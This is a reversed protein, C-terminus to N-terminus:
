EHRLAIAPDVKAARRAPVLAAVLAVLGLVGTMTAYSLPDTASVGDLFGAFLRSLALAGALGLGVGALTLRLGQGLVLRLTDRVEAGLALRIGIEQTRREVMYAMVGYVGVSALLLALGGLAAVLAAVAWDRAHLAAIQDSVRRVNVAPIRPDLARLEARLAGALDLPDGATRLVLELSHRDNQAAPLYLYPVPEERLDRYKSDKVVGIVSAPHEGGLDLRQGLAPQGPWYRRVFAENVIAAPPSDPTDQAGFDRGELLGIGLTRFYGPGVLNTSLEMDEGEAPVYGAIGVGTRMGAPDVPVADAVAASIVGPLAAAREQVAAYFDRRQRADYGQHAPSLSVALLGKADFGPDLRLAHRLNQVLLGTGILLVLCLAIQAIVLGQGLGIRRFGTASAPRAHLSDGAGLRWSQLIPALGFIMGTLLAVASTFGLVRLDMPLESLMVQESFTRAFGVHALAQGLGWALAAGALGALGALTLSEVLLQQALRRRRAGLALRVAIERERAKSRALLLNAVNACAILLALGVVSMVLTAVRRALRRSGDSLQAQDAPLVSMPRPQEPAHLVGLNTDPYQQALRSMVATLQAQAAQPSADPALRGVLRLWRAGRRELISERGPWTVDLRGLPLWVDPDAELSTGRFTAPAVGAVTVPSGNLLLEEGVVGARGGFSRQWLRHSLVAVAAAGPHDDEPLLTRGAAPEVGLVAFYNGTVVAASLRESAEAGGRDVDLFDAYAALSQIGPAGAQFDLYDPYSSGSYPAGSSGSTYVAVLRDAAAVGPVGRLLLANVFGFIATSVGIALALTLVAVATFGPSRALQRLAYRLDQWLNAAMEPRGPDPDLRISPTRRRPPPVAPLPAAARPLAGGRWPLRERAAAELVGAMERLCLLGAGTRGREHLAEDLLERFMQRMGCGYAGRLEAPLARLTWAFLAEARRQFATREV